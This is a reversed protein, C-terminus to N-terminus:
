SSFLKKLVKIQELTLSQKYLAIMEIDGGFGCYPYNGNIQRLSNGLIVKNLPFIPVVETFEIDTTGSLIFKKTTPDFSFAFVAPTSHSRPSVQVKTVFQYAGNAWYEIYVENSKLPDNPSAAYFFRISNTTNGISLICQYSKPYDVEGIRMKVFATIADSTFDIEGTSDTRTIQSGTTLFPMGPTNGYEVQPASLYFFDGAKQNSTYGPYFRLLPANIATAQKDTFVYTIWIRFWGDGLPEVGAFSGATNALVRYDSPNIKFAAYMYDVAGGYNGDLQMGFVDATGAKVIASAVVEVNHNLKGIVGVYQQHSGNALAMMKICSNGGVFPSVTNDITASIGNGNYWGNASSGSAIAAPSNNPILSTSARALYLGSRNRKSRYNTRAVNQAVVDFKGAANLVYSPSSTLKIEPSVIDKTFDLRVAPNINPLSKNFM